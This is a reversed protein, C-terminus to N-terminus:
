YARAQRIRILPKQNINAGATFDYPLSEAIMLGEVSEVLEVLVDWVSKGVYSYNDVVFSSSLAEAADDDIDVLNTDYLDRIFSYPRKTFLEDKLTADDNLILQLVHEIVDLVTYRSDGGDIVKTYDLAKATRGGSSIDVSGKNGLGKPNFIPEVQQFWQATSPESNFFGGICDVMSLLGAYAIGGITCRGEMINVTSSDLFGYWVPFEVGNLTETIKVYIPTNYVGSLNVKFFDPAALKLINDQDDYDPKDVPNGNPLIAFSATGLKTGNTFVRSQAILLESEVWQDASIQGVSEAFYVKPATNIYQNTVATIPQSGDPM